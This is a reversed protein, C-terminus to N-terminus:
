EALKGARGLSDTPGVVVLGAAVLLMGGLLTIAVGADAVFAGSGPGSSLTTIAWWVPIVVTLSGGIVALIGSRRHTGRIAAGAAIAAAVVVALQVIANPTPPPGQVPGVYEQRRLAWPLWVGALATVFGGIGLVTRLARGASVGAVTVTVELDSPDDPTAGMASADNGEAQPAPQDEVNARSPTTDNDADDRGAM